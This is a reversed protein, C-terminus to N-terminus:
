IDVGLHWRQCDQLNYYRYPKDDCDMTIHPLGKAVALSLQTPSNAYMAVNKYTTEDIYERGDTHIIKASM